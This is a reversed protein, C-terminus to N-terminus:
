PSWNIVASGGYGQNSLYSCDGSDRDNSYNTDLCTFEPFQGGDLPVFIEPTWEATCSSCGMLQSTAMLGLLIYKTGTAQVTEIVCLIRFEGSVNYLWACATSIGSQCSFCDTLTQDWELVFKQNPSPYGGGDGPCWIIDSFTIEIFQPVGGPFSCVSCEVSVCCADILEQLSDYGGYTLIPRYKGGSLEMCGTKDDTCTGFGGVLKPRHKGGSLEMCGVMDADTCPNTWVPRYKGGSLEMCGILDYAM